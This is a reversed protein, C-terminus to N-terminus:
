IVKALNKFIESQKKFSDKRKNHFVDTHNIENDALLLCIKSLGNCVQKLKRNM